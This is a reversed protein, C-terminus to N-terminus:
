NEEEQKLRLAAEYADRVPIDLLRAAEKAAGKTGLGREMQNLMKMGENLGFTTIFCWDVFVDCWDFGNKKGNYVAGFGDLDRAYKTWNNKGANATKDDLQANSAKELYGIEAEATKILREVATM